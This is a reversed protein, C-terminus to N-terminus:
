QLRDTHPDESASKQAVSWRVFVRYEKLDHDGGEAIEAVVCVVKGLHPLCHPELMCVACSTHASCTTLYSVDLMREMGKPFRGSSAIGRSSFSSM